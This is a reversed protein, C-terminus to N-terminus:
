AVKGMARPATPARMMRPEAPPAYQFPKFESAEARLFGTRLPSPFGRLSAFETAEARLTSVAGVSASDAVPRMAAGVSPEEGSLSVEASAFDTTHVRVVFANSNLPNAFVRTVVAPSPKEPSAVADQSSSPQSVQKSQGASGQEADEKLVSSYRLRNARALCQRVSILRAQKRKEKSEEDDPLKMTREAEKPKALERQQTQRELCSEWSGMMPPVPAFIATLGATACTNRGTGRTCISRSSERISRRMDNVAKTDVREENRWTASQEEYLKRMAILSQIKRRTSCRFCIEKTVAMHRVEVNRCRPYMTDSWGNSLAHNIANICRKFPITDSDLNALLQAHWHKTIILGEEPM